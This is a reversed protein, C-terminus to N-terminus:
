NFTSILGGYMKNGNSIPSWTFNSAFIYWTTKLDSFKADLRLKPYNCFKTIPKLDKRVLKEKFKPLTNTGFNSIIGTGDNLSGLNM